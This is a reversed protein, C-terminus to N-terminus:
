ETIRLGFPRHTQDETLPDDTDHDPDFSEMLGSFSNIGM